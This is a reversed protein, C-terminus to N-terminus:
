ELPVHDQSVVAVQQFLRKEIGQSEGNINLDLHDIFLVLLDLLLELGVVIVLDCAAVLLQLMGKLTRVIFVCEIGKDYAAGVFKGVSGAGSHRFFRALVVVGQEDITRGSQSLGM